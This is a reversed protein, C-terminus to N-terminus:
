LSVGVSPDLPSFDGSLVVQIIPHFYWEDINTLAIDQHSFGHPFLWKCYTNVNWAYSSFKDERQEGYDDLLYEIHPIQKFNSVVDKDYQRRISELNQYVDLHIFHPERLAQIYQASFLKLVIDAQEPTMFDYPSHLTNVELCVSKQGATTRERSNLYRISTDGTTGFCMLKLCHTMLLSLKLEFLRSKTMVKHLFTHSHYEDDIAFLANVHFQFHEFQWKVVQNHRATTVPQQALSEAITRHLGDYLSM